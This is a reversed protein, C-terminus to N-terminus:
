AAGSSNPDLVGQGTVGFESVYTPTGGSAPTAASLPMAVAALVGGTVMAAYRRKM